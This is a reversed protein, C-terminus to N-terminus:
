QVGKRLWRKIHNEYYSRRKKAYYAFIAGSMAASMGCRWPRYVLSGHNWGSENEGCMRQGGQPLCEERAERASCPSFRMNIIVSDGSRIPTVGLHDESAEQLSARLGGFERPMGRQQLGCSVPRKQTNVKRNDANYSWITSRYLWKQM